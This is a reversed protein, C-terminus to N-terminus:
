PSAASRLRVLFEFDVADRLWVRQANIGFARRSVTGRVRIPCARGPDDCEAPEIRFGVRGTRGRLTLDGALEGGSRLLAREFPVSEFDIRPHNDVDLFKASRTSRQMWGPGDLKLSRSDIRVHVQWQGGGAPRLEGKLKGFRGDVKGAVRLDVTIGADSAKPDFPESDPARAPMTAVAMLGALCLGGARHRSM